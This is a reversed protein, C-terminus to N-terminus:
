RRLGEYVAQAVQRGLHAPDSGAAIRLAGGPIRPVAGGSLLRAPLRGDALLAGLEAEATRRVTRQHRADLEFVSLALRQIRLRVSPTSASTV